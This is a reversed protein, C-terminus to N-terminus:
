TSRALACYIARNAFRRSWMSAQPATAFQALIGAHVFWAGLDDVHDDVARVRVPDRREPGLDQTTGNTSPLPGYTHNSRESASTPM